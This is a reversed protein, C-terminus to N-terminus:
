GAHRRSSWFKEAHDLYVIARDRLRQVRLRPEPITADELASRVWPYLPDNMVEHGLGFMLAAVLTVADASPQLAMKQLTYQAHDIIRKVGRESAQAYREPYADRLQAQLRDIGQVSVEARASERIRNVAPIFISGKKGIVRAWYERVSHHVREAWDMEAEAPARSDIAARIAPYLPDTEFRTGFTVTCQLVMRIPGRLTFGLKQARGIGDRVVHRFVDSGRLEHLKPAYVALHDLM